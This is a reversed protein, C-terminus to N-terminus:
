MSEFCAPLLVVFLSELVLGCLLASNFATRSVGQADTVCERGLYNPTKEFKLLLKPAQTSSM